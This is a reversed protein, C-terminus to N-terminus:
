KRTHQNGCLPCEVERGRDNRCDITFGCDCKIIPQLKSGGLAAGREKSQGYAALANDFSLRADWARRKADRYIHDVHIEFYVLANAMERGADLIREVSEAREALRSTAGGSGQPAPPRPGCKIFGDADVEPINQGGKSMPGETLPRVRHEKPAAGENSQGYDALQDILSNIQSRVVRLTNALRGVEMAERLPMPQVAGASLSELRRAAPGLADILEQETWGITRRYGASADIISQRARYVWTSLEADTM